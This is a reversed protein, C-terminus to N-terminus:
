NLPLQERLAKLKDMKIMRKVDDYSINDGFGYCINYIKNSNNHNNFMNVAKDIKKPYKRIRNNNDNLLPYESTDYNYVLGGSAIYDEHMLTLGYPKPMCYKDTSTSDSEGDLAKKLDKEQKEESPIKNKEIESEKVLEKVIESEKVLEPEKISEKIPKTIPEQPPTLATPFPQHSDIFKEKNPLSKKVYILFYLLIISLSSYFLITSLNTDNNSLKLVIAVLIPLSIYYLIM